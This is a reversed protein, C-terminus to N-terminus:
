PDTNGNGNKGQNAGKARWYWYEAMSVWYSLANDPYDTPSPGGDNETKRVLAARQGGTRSEWEEAEIM